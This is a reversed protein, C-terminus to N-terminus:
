QEKDKSTEEEKFMKDKRNVIWFGISEASVGLLVSYTRLWSLINYISNHYKVANDNDSSLNVILDPLVFIVGLMILVSLIIRGTSKNIYHKFARIFNESYKSSIQIRISQVTVVIALGILFGGIIILYKELM